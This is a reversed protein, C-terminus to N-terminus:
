KKAYKQALLQAYRDTYVGSQKMYSENFDLIAANNVGHIGAYVSLANVQLNSMSVTYTDEDRVAKSFNLVAHGLVRDRGRETNGFVAIAPAFKEHLQEYLKSDVAFSVMRNRHVIDKAEQLASQTIRKRVAVERAYSLLSDFNPLPNYSIRLSESAEQMVQNLPTFEHHAM